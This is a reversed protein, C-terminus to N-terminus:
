VPLNFKHNPDSLSLAKKEGEVWAQEVLAGLDLINVPLYAHVSTGRRQHYKGGSNDKLKRLRGFPQEEPDLLPVLEGNRLDHYPFFVGPVPCGCLQQADDATVLHVKNQILFQPTIGACALATPISNCNSHPDSNNQM